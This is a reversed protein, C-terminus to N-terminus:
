WNVLIPLFGSFEVPSLIQSMGWNLVSEIYKVLEALRKELFHDNVFLCLTHLTCLLCINYFNGM